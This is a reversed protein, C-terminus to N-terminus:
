DDFELAAAAGGENLKPRDPEAMVPESGGRKPPPPPPPRRRPRPRRHEESLIRLIGLRFWREFGRM